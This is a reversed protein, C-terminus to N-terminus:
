KVIEENRSVIVPHLREGGDRNQNKRKDCARLKEAKQEAHLNDGAADRNGYPQATKCCYYKAAERVHEPTFIARLLLAGEGKRILTLSETVLFNM